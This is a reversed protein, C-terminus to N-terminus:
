TESREEAIIATMSNLVTKIRQVWEANSRNSEYEAYPEFEKITADRDILDGHQEPLEGIIPCWSPRAMHWFEDDDSVYRKGGVADCGTLENLKNWHSMPCHECNLPMEMRVIVESM